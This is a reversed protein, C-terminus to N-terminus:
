LALYNRSQPKEASFLPDEIWALNHQRCDTIRYLWSMLPSNEVFPKIGEAEFEFFKMGGLLTLLVVLDYRLLGTGGIVLWRAVESEISGYTVPRNTETTKLTAM